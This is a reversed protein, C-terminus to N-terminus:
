MEGATRISSKTIGPIEGIRPPINLSGCAPPMLRRRFRRTVLTGPNIGLPRTVRCEEGRELWDTRLASYNLIWGGPRLVRACQALTRAMDSTHNLADRCWIFDVSGDPLPIAEMRGRVLTVQGLLGERSIRDSALKLTEPLPDVGIVRCSLQKALECAERGKGCGLDLLTMGPGIGYRAPVEALFACSSRGGTSEDLWGVQSEDAALFPWLFRYFSAIGNM